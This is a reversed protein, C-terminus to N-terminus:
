AAARRYVQFISISGADTTIRQLTSLLNGHAVRRAYMIRQEGNYAASDLTSSNIKTLTMHTLGPVETPMESGDPVGRFEVHHEVNERDLWDISISVVGDTQTIRYIGTQPAEGQEYICLEPILEWTGLYAEISM